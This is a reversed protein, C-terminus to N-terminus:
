KPTGNPLYGNKNADLCLRYTDSWVKDSGAKPAAVYLKHGQTLKIEIRRVAEDLLPTRKAKSDIKPTAEELTRNIGNEISIGKSADIYGDLIFDSAISCDAELAEKATRAAVNSSLLIMM